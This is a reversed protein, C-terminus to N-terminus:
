SFRLNDDAAPAQSSEQSETGSRSQSVTDYFGAPSCCFQFFRSFARLKRRFVPSPISPISEGVFPVSLHLHSLSSPSLSVSRMVTCPLLLVRLDALFSVLVLSSIYRPAFLESHLSFHFSFSSFSTVVPIRLTNAAQFIRRENRGRKAERAVLRSTSARAYTFLVSPNM